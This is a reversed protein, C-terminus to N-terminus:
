RIQKSLRVLAGLDDILGNINCQPKTINLLVFPFAILFHAIGM